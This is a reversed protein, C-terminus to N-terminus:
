LKWYALTSHGFMNDPNAAAWKSKSIDYEGTVPGCRDLLTAIKEPFHQFDVVISQEARLLGFDEEDFDLTYLFFLEDPSTLQVKLVQLCIELLM